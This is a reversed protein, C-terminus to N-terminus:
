RGTSVDVRTAYYAIRKLHKPLIQHADRPILKDKKIQETLKTDVIYNKDLVVASSHAAVQTICGTQLTPNSPVKRYCREPGCVDFIGKAGLWESAITHPNETLRDIQAQYKPNYPLKM